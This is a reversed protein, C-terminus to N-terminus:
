RELITHRYKVNTSPDILYDGVEKTTTFMAEYSPFFTDAPKDSELVTIYLRDALLIAEEYIQGGGIIFIEDKEVEKAKRIAEELSHAILVGDQMFTTNRTIVINTRNPLPKGISEFTNRGMIIAHGTTLQKFRKLDESIKYLLENQYGIGRDKAQIAVIISILPYQM